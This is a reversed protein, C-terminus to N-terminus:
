MEKSLFESILLGGIILAAGAFGFLTIQEGLIVFALCAAFIPEMSFILSARTPSVDPQFRTQLITTIITALLATYLVAYIVAPAPQIIATEWSFVHFISCFLISALATFAIQIFTLFLYHMTNGIMDLYVIYLAYMFACLLTLADGITFNSGLSGLVDHLTNGSSSLLFVGIVALIIAAGNALGPKKRMLITQLAPTFIVFLGTIFASKTATTSKLGVTQAAFSIFFILSLIGAQQWQKRSVNKCYKLAFPALVVAALTFRASIFALPSIFGLASKILAFTAGWLVTTLLLAGESFLHRKTTNAM